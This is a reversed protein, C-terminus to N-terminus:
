GNDNVVGAAHPGREDRITMSRVLLKVLNPFSTEVRDGPQLPRNFDPALVTNSLLRAVDCGVHVRFDPHYSIAGASPDDM